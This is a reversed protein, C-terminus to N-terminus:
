WWIPVAEPQTLTSPTRVENSSQIEVEAEVAPVVSGPAAGLLVDVAFADGVAGGVLGGAPEM